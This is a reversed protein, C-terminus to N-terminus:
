VISHQPPWALSYNEHTLSLNSNYAPDSVLENGWRSKMLNIENLFREQKEENDEYGRSVSEHHIMEAYPTWINRYGKQRVRLCFDVDNFAVSLKEDFGGAELFISRRVMMCAGTVASLSQHLIARGFYGPDSKHFFKHAHGAVGGIGLIVGGHQLRGNPYWLRAGVCGIDDQCAFSSMEEIWDPTIIEIDNNLLCVLEGNSVNVGQNILSSFNFARNDKIVRVIDKPLSKFLGHTSQEVSGNDVIIVEYNKYTQKHLIGDLCQSLLDARDRTPIVISVKPNKKPSEFIVRNFNEASPAPVVKAMSETRDLHERVARRGAEVAYDKNDTTLATSGSIARWHYLIRPIHIINRFNLHEIVRLALDYDQSGEFGMRFGGVKRIIDVRYVGLHCIMNQALMLEKNYDCKFYPDYRTGQTNIKDEDSYILGAEPHKTITRAVWYLAHAPLEDDHDLLAVYEGTVLGLASNSAASIHGNSTRFVVKIREDSNAYQSLMQTVSKDTSADDCICLEWNQYLQNKVSKIAKDLFKLPPNYVPMLVSVKPTRPLNAMDDLIAEKTIADLTDYRKLWEQYDTHNVIYSVGSSTYFPDLSKVKRLGEQLGSTGYKRYKIIAKQITQAFGGRGAIAMPLLSLLSKPPVPRRGEYQGHYIYHIIPAVGAIKVDPNTKLYFKSDFHPNKIITSPTLLKTIALASNELKKNAELNNLQLLNAQKRLNEENNILESHQTKLKELDAQLKTILKELGAMESKNKKIVHSLEDQLTANKNNLIVMQNNLDAIVTDSRLADAKHQQKTRKVEDQLSAIERELTMVLQESAKLNQHLLGVKENNQQKTRDLEDRLSDNERNLSIVSQESAQLNQHLLNLTEDIAVMEQSIDQHKHLLLYYDEEISQGGCPLRENQNRYELDTPNVLHDVGEVNDIRGAIIRQGLLNKETPSKRIICLSNIFEVSHIRDLQAHTADIHYKKVFGSLVEDSVTNSRWHERNVIDALHKLYAISTYPFYLGGKYETWYSCHLDEIVFFGEDAVLPFYRIFTEIIDCSRHSGDDIIIDYQPSHSTIQDVAAQSNANAVVIAIRPDDFELGGCEPRIDCGVIIEANGFYKGWIELSGGNQVGIELM